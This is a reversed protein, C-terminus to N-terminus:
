MRKEKNIKLHSVWTPANFLSLLPFHVPLMPTKDEWKRTGGKSITRIHSGPNSVWVNM